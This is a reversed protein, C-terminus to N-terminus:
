KLVILEFDEGGVTTEGTDANFISFEIFNPELPSIKPTAYPLFDIDSTLTMDNEAMAKAFRQVRTLGHVHPTETYGQSMCEKTGRAYIARLKATSVGLEDAIIGLTSEIEEPSM